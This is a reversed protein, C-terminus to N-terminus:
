RRTTHRRSAGGIRRVPIGAGAALAAADAKAAALTPAPYTEFDEDGVPMVYYAWKEGTCRNYDFASVEAIMDAAPGYAVYEIAM